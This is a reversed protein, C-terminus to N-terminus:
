SWLISLLTLAYVETTLELMSQLVEDRKKHKQNLNEDKRPIGYRFAIKCIVFCVTVSAFRSHNFTLLTWPSMEINRLLLHLVFTCVTTLVARLLSDALM